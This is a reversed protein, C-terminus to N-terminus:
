YTKFNPHLGLVPSSPIRVRALIQRFHLEVKHNHQKGLTSRQLHQM